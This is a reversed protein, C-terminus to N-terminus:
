RGLYNDGGKEVKIMYSIWYFMAISIGIIIFLNTFDAVAPMISFLSEFLDGIGKFISTM